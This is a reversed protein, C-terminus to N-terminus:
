QRSGKLRLWGSSKVENLFYFRCSSFPKNEWGYFGCGTQKRGVYEAEGGKECLQLTGAGEDPCNKERKKPDLRGWPSWEQLKRRERSCSWDRRKRRIMRMLIYCVRTDEVKLCRGGKVQHGSWSHSWKEAGKLAIDKSITPKRHQGWDKGGLREWVWKLWTHARMVGHFHSKDMEGIADIKGLGHDNGM